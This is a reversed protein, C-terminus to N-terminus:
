IVESRGGDVALTVVHIFDAEDSVLFLAANAIDDPTGIRGAPRQQSAKAIFAPDIVRHAVMPTAILGPAIGVARIGQQGYAAALQRTFGIVGHKTTTYSAGGFGGRLGAGSSINLIVGGGRQLMHPILAKTVNFMGTLNVSLVKDWLEMSTELVQKTGDLVGATNSLISIRGVQGIAVEVCREVEDRDAIDLHAVFAAAGTRRIDDVVHAATEANVDAVIVAAGERAFRVAQARGIGSGAGTIFAAKGELRGM